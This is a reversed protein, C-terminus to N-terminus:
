YKPKKFNYHYGINLWPLRIAFLTKTKTIKFKVGLFFGYKIDIESYKFQIVTCRYYKTIINM